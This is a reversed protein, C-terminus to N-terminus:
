APLRDCIWGSRLTGEMRHRHDDARCRRKTASALWSIRLGSAEERVTNSTAECCPREVPASRAAISSASISWVRM